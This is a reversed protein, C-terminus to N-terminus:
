QIVHYTWSYATAATLAVANSNLVLTTTTSSPFIAQTVLLAATAANNPSIVVIPNAGYAVAFTLTIITASAAPTTGTTVNIIGKLDSATTLSITPSTGAGTGAATSPAAGQGLIHPVTLAPSTYAFNVNNNVLGATSSYFPISAAAPSTSSMIFYKAGGNNGRFAGTSSNFWIDANSITSPDGAFSGINIGPLTTTATFLHRTLSQITGNATTGTGTTFTINGSTSNSTGTTFNLNGSNAGLANGTGLAINGSLGNATTNTNIAVNGSVGSTGGGSGTLLNISGGAGNTVGNGATLSVGGGTTTGTGAALTVNGAIGAGNAKSGITFGQGVTAPQITSAAGGFEIFGTSSNLYIDGSNLSAPVGAFNGINIGSSTASPSFSVTGNGTFNINFGAEAINTNQVLTGGWQGNSGTLTLGNNLTTVGGAGGTTLFAKWGVAKKMYTNNGNGNIITGIPAILGGLTFTNTDKPAIGLNGALTISGVNANEQSFGLLPLITLFLIRFFHKM